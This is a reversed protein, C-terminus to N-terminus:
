LTRAAKAWAEAATRGGNAMSDKARRSSFVFWVDPWHWQVYAKPHKRLVRQRSTRNTSPRM